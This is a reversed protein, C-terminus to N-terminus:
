ATRVQRRRMAASALIGLVIGVVFAIAAVLYVVRKAADLVPNDLVNASVHYAAIMWRDDEKVLTATWRNKLDFEMGMIKYHPISSGFAIATDGGYIISLDDPEPPQKYGQFVRQEEPNIKGLFSKLGDRGRTVDNNQWTTVIKEHAFELQREVNGEALAKTLGDRLARLENHVPDEEGNPKGTHTEEQALTSAATNGVVLLLAILVTKM